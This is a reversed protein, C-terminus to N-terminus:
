GGHLDRGSCGEKADHGGTKSAWCWRWEAADERSAGELGVDSDGGIMRSGSGGCRDGSGGGDGCAYGGGAESPVCFAGIAPDEEALSGVGFDHLHALPHAVERFHSHKRFMDIWGGEVRTEHSAQHPLRLAKLLVPVVRCDLTSLKDTNPLPM